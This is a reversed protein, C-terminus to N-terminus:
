ERLRASLRHFVMARCVLFFALVCLLPVVFVAARCFSAWSNNLTSDFFLLYMTGFAGLTSVGHAEDLWARSPYMGCNSAGIPKWWKKRWNALWRRGIWIWAGTLLVNVVLVHRYLALGPDLNGRTPPHVFLLVTDIIHQTAAIWQRLGECETCAVLGAFYLMTTLLLCEAAARLLSMAISGGCAM